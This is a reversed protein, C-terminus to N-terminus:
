KGFHERELDMLGVLSQGMERRAKIFAEILAPNVRGLKADELLSDCCGRLRGARARMETLTELYESDIMPDELLPHLDGHLPLSRVAVV